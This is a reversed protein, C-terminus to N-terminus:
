FHLNGKDLAEEKIPGLTALSVNGDGFIGNAVDVVNDVTVKELESVIEEYSIYRQYVFENKAIRMMRNDTSESALFIGGILHDVAAALESKSINGNRIKNIEHKIAELVPNVNQNDTAV